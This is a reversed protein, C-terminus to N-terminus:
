KKSASEYLTQIENSTLDRSYFLIESVAGSAGPALAEIPRSFALNSYKELPGQQLAASQAALRGNIYLFKHKGRAHTVAIWYWQNAKLADPATVSNVRRSDAPKEPFYATHEIQGLANMWLVRDYTDNNESVVRNSWLIQNKIEDFRIWCAVTFDGSGRRFIPLVNQIEAVATGNMQLAYDSRSGGLAPGSTIKADSETQVNLVSQGIVDCFTYIQDGKLRFYLLPDLMRATSEFASPIEYTFQSVRAPILNITDGSVRGAQNASLRITKEFVRLNSGLRMEVNGKLVHAETRAYPDISVGFETGYDVISASLTRVTFGIGSKPVNATLKGQILFVQDDEELRLEAPAEVLVMSGDDMQIRLLGKQLKILEDGLHEEQQLYLSSDSFVTQYSDVIQGHYIDRFPAFHTYALILLGAAMTALMPILSTKRFSRSAQKQTLEPNPEPVQEMKEIEVAPAQKEMKALSLWLEQHLFSDDEGGIANFCFSNGPKQMHACAELIAMYMSRIEDSENLKKEFIQFEEASVSGDLIRIITECIDYKEKSSQM